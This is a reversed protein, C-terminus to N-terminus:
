QVITVLAFQQQNFTGTVSSHVYVGVYYQGPSLGTMLFNFGANAFQSGFVAAVDPRAGGLLAANVFQGAGIVGNVVPFAWVHVADVGVGSTAGLDVAWGGTNFPQKITANNAPGDLSMRPDTGAGVTRISEVVSGSGAAYYGRARIYLNAALSQGTM